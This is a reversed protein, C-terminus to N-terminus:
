EVNRAEFKMLKFELPENQLLAKLWHMVQETAEDDSQLELQRYSNLITGENNMFRTDVILEFTWRKKM